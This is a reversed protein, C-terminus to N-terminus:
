TVSAFYSGVHDMIHFYISDVHKSTLRKMQFPCGPTDVNKRLLLQSGWGGFFGYVIGLSPWALGLFNLVNIFKLIGQPVPWCFTGLVGFGLFWAVPPFKSCCFQIGKAKSLIWGLHKQFPFPWRQIFCTQIFSHLYDDLLLGHQVQSEVPNSGSSPVTITQTTPHIGLIFWEWPAFFRTSESHHTLITYQYVHYFM